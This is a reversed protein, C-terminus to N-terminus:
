VLIEEFEVIYDSGQYTIFKNFVTHKYYTDTDFLEIKITGNENLKMSHIKINNEYPRISQMEKRIENFIMQNVVLMSEKNRRLYIKTNYCRRRINEEETDSIHNGRQSRYDYDDIPEPAIDEPNIEYEEYEDYSIPVVEASYEAENESEVEPHYVDM